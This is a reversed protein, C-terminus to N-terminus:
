YCKKNNYVKAEINAMQLGTFNEKKKKEKKREEEKERRKEKIEIKLGIITKGLIIGKNAKGLTRRGKCNIKLM